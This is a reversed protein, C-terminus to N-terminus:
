RDKSPANPHLLSWLPGLVFGFMIGSFSSLLNQSTRVAQLRPLCDDHLGVQLRSVIPALQM